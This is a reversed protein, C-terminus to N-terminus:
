AARVIYNVSVNTPRTERQQESEQMVRYNGSNDTGTTATHGTDRGAYNGWDGGGIASAPAQSWEIDGLLRNPNIGRGNDKGRLFVGRLDPLVGNTLVGGLRPYTNRDFGAGNCLFWGAPPNETPWPLMLGPPIDRDLTAFEGAKGSHIGGTQTNFEWISEMGSDGLAHIVPHAHMDEGPMLYGYSIATPWGKDKRTSTGKAIPVFVGGPTTPWQWNPQFFPAQNGLQEAYTGAGVPKADPTTALNPATVPGTFTGGSTMMVRDWGSFTGNINVAVRLGPKGGAEHSIQLYHNFKGSGAATSLDSGNTTCIVSGWPVGAWTSNEVSWVGPSSPGTAGTLVRSVGMRAAANNRVDAAQQPNATTFFQQRTAYVIGAPETASNNAGSFDSIITVGSYRSNLINMTSSVGTHNSMKLWFNYKTTNGNSVEETVGVLYNQTDISRGLSFQQILNGVTAATVRTSASTGRTTLYVRDVAMSAANVGYDSMGSLEIELRTESNVVPPMTAIKLWHTASGSTLPIQRLAGVDNATLKVDGSADPKHTNVSRVVGEVAIGMLKEIAKYLQTDDNPDLTLGGEQVVKILERQLTNLWAAMIWTCSIQKQPDGDTFEGNKDATNTTNGIKQM